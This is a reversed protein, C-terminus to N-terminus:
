EIEGALYRKILMEVIAVRTIRPSIERCRAALKKVMSEPLRVQLLITPEPNKQIVAM